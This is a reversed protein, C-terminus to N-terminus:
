KKKYLKIIENLDNELSVKRDPLMTTGKKIKYTYPNKQYHNKDHTKKSFKLKKVKTLRGIMKILKKITIKNKGYINFYNNEYKKKLLKLVIKSADKANIYNRVEKGLTDRTIKKKNIAELIFNNITNFHNSRLGYLAGFRLISYKLNYKDSYNEIISECARKSASYFGGQSSRAYISSAFVLRKLKKSYKVAELINTLGIINSHITKFPYDNAEEIDAVGGFNFIYNKNKIAKKVQNFNNIDGLIMKQKKSKYKSKKLDFITVDFNDNTLEDAVHSGLFGSGGFVIAKKIKKKIM